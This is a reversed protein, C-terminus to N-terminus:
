GRERMREGEHERRGVERKNLSVVECETQAGFTINGRIGVEGDM